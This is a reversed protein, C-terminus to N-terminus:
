KPLNQYIQEFLKQHSRGDRKEFFSVLDSSFSDTDKVYYNLKPYLQGLVLNVEGIMLPLQSPYRRFKDGISSIVEKYTTSKELLPTKEPVFSTLEGIVWIKIEDKVGLRILDECLALRVAFNQNPKLLLSQAFSLFNVLDLKLLKQYDFQSIQKAASFDDMIKKQQESSVPEVKFSSKEKLLNQLQLFEILFHNAALVQYYEEKIKPESFLDPESKILAYAQDEQQHKRYLQSLKVIIESAHGLQLAQELNAIAGAINGKEEDEQALKLLNQQSINM